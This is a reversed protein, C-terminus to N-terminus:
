RWGRSPRCSRCRRRGKAGCSARRSLSLVLRYPLDVVSAVFRTMEAFTFLGFTAENLLWKTFATIWRAAPITAARPYDFAWPAIGAGFLWLLAFLSLAAVWGPGAGGPGGRM